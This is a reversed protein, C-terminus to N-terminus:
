FQRNVPRFPNAVTSDDALGVDPPAPPPGIRSSDTMRAARGARATRTTNMQAGATALAARVLPLSDISPVITADPSDPGRVSRLLTNTAVPANVPVPWSTSTALRGPSGSFTVRSSKTNGTPLIWMRTVLWAGVSDFLGCLQVPETRMLCDM